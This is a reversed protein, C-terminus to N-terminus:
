ALKSIKKRKIILLFTKIKSFQFSIYFFWVVWQKEASLNNSNFMKISKRRLM